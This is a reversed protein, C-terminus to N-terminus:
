GNNEEKEDNGIVSLLEDFSRRRVKVNLGYMKNIKECAELRTMLFTEAMLSILENNSNAEDTILRERKETNVNNVGMSTLFDCMLAQKYTNLKDAVYPADTKHVKINDLNLSKNILILPENGDYQNYFNKMTLKDKDNSLIVYPTKQANINIDITRETNSLRQAFLRVTYDTSKELINNRILVCKNRPFIKNYNNSFATYEVSENYVNLTGSPITCLNLYSMEEDNVFIARGYHYLSLEMFRANCTDPLDIWEHISLAIIKLRDYIDQLTFFNLAKTKDYQITNDNM